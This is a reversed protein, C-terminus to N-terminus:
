HCRINTISNIFRFIDLTEELVFLLSTIGTKVVIQFKCTCAFKLIVKMFKGAKSNSGSECKNIQGYYSM